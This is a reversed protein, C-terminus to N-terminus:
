SKDMDDSATQPSGVVLLAAALCVTTRRMSNGKFDPEQKNTFPSHRPVNADRPM